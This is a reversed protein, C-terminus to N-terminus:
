LIGISELAEKRKRFERAEKTNSCNICLPKARRLDEYTLVFKEHCKNCLSSKGILLDALTNHSCDPDACMYRAPSNRGSKLILRKYTHIHNIAPM